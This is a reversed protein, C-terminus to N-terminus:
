YLYHIFLLNSIISSFSLVESEVLKNNYDEALSAKETNMKEINLNCDNLCNKYFTVENDKEFNYQNQNNTITTKFSFTLRRKNHNFLTCFVQLNNFDSQLVQNEQRLKDLEIKNEKKLDNLQKLSNSLTEIQQEKELLLQNKTNKINFIFIFL